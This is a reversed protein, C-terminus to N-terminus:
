PEKYGYRKLDVRDNEVIIGEAELRERQAEIGGFAYSVSLKGNSNVVRYCPYKEGDPNHHLANGVARAWLKNGLMHALEGYTVVKGYPVTCLLAFLKEKSFNMKEMVEM